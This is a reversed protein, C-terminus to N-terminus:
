EGRDASGHAVDSAATVHRAMRRQAANEDQEVIAETVSRHARLTDSRVQPRDFAEIETADHIAESLASMLASFLENRSANVIQMHWHVNAGLFAETDGAGDAAEMRANIEQLSYIHRETRNRAALAAAAPEIAERVELLSEFRVRSGRIYLSLMHKVHAESPRRVRSGGNRGPRTELLGELELIRLAERVSVRSLATQEVLERESPLSAGEDLEGSLIRNRIKEALVDSAKPVSIRGVDSFQDDLSETM